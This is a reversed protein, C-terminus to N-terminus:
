RRVKGGVKMSFEIGVCRGVRGEVDLGEWSPMGVYMFLGMAGEETHIVQLGLPFGLALGLNKSTCKGRQM